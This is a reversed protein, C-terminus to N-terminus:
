FPLDDEDQKIIGLKLLFSQIMRKFGYKIHGLNCLLLRWMQKVLVKFGDEEMIADLDTEKSELLVTSGKEILYEEDLYMEYSSHMLFLLGTYRKSMTEFFHFPAAWPTDCTLTLVNKTKSAVDIQSDWKCGYTMCNYDYWGVVGYQEMQEKTAAKYEEILEETVIPSDETWPRSPKGVELGEGNPYNTTDYRLFTEPVPIWSSFSMTGNEHKNADSIFQEIDEDKGVVKIKNFTWNPMSYLVILRYM